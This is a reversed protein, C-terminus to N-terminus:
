VGDIPCEVSLAENLLEHAQLRLYVLQEPLDLVPMVENTPLPEDFSPALDNQRVDIVVKRPQQLVGAHLRLVLDRLDDRGLHIGM